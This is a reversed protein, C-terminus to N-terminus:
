VTDFIVTFYNSAYFKLNKQVTSTHVHVTGSSNLSSSNEGGKYIAFIVMFYNSAYFKLFIQFLTLFPGLVSNM